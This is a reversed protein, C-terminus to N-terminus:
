NPPPPACTPSGDHRGDARSDIPSQDMSADTANGDVSAETANGDAANMASVDSTAGDSVSGDVNDGSSSCAGLAFALILASCFALSRRMVSLTIAQHSM